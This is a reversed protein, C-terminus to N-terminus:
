VPNKESEEVKIYTQDTVIVPLLGLRLLREHESRKM